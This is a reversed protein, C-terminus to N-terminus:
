NTLEFESALLGSGLLQSSDYGAIALFLLAPYPGSAGFNVLLVLWVPWEGHGKWGIQGGFEGVAAHARSIAKSKGQKERRQNM